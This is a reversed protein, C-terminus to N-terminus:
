SKEEKKEKKSEEGRETESKHKRLGALAESFEKRKKPLNGFLLFGVLLLVLMQTFSIM